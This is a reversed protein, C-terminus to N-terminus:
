SKIEMRSGCIKEPVDGFGALAFLGEHRRTPAATLSRDDANQERRMACSRESQAPGDM